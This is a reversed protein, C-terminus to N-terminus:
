RRPRPKGPPRRRKFVTHLGGSLPLAAALEWGESGRQNLWQQTLEDVRELQEVRYEWDPPRIGPDRPEPRDRRPPAQALVRLVEARIKEQDAGLELLIRGAVATDDHTLGLLIHETDVIDHGLARSENSSEELARRARPTFPIEGPSPREGRGVVTEVRDRVGDLSAGLIELVRAAVGEEERLLGLLVHETGIHRHRFRRTEDQAFVVVQRASETFREFV